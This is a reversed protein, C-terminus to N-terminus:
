GNKKRFVAIYFGDNVDTPLFQEESVKEFQPYTNMFWASNKENELSSITCTSYCLVGGPKVYAQVTKLIQQQLKQLKKQEEKTVRYRIDPKHGMIGLGSCPLDAIVTDAKEIWATDTIRADQVNAEINNLGSKVINDRIIAVKEETLDRALVRGTKQMKEAAHLSKGGPAACVDLVTQAAEIGAREVVMMSSVDQVYFRGERFSQLTTLHDYNEISFAYPLRKKKVTPEFVNYVTVHEKQLIAYLEEPSNKQINTRITLKKEQLFAQLIALTKEKGYATLFDNVIWRPMSFRISVTDMWSQEEEPLPNNKDRLSNKGYVFGKEDRIAARLVANVFGKLNKFGRKQTLKVAESVAASQPVRDMYLLQYISLRLINRIVPKMKKVPVSAYGSIIYDLELKREITGASMKRIFSRESHGLYEYKDLVNKIVIHSFQGKELVELLIDLVINRESFESM